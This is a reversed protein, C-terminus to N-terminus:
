TLVSKARPKSRARVAASCGSPLMTAAPKAIRVLPM